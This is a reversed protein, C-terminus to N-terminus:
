STMAPSSGAMWTKSAARFFTTSPVLGPMVFLRAHGFVGGKRIAGADAGHHEVALAEHEDPPAGISRLVDVEAVHPLHRLAADILTLVRPRRRQAFEGLLRVDGRHLLESLNGIPEVVIQRLLDRLLGPLTLVASLRLFPVRQAEGAVVALDVDELRGASMLRFKDLPAPLRHRVKRVEDNRELSGDIFAHHIRERM